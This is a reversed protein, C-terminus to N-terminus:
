IATCLCLVISLITRVRVRLLINRPLMHFNGRRTLWEKLERDDGGTFVVQYVSVDFAQFSSKNLSFYGLYKLKFSIQKKKEPCAHFFHQLVNHIYRKPTHTLTQKIHPIIHTRKPHTQQKLCLMSITPQLTFSFQYYPSDM